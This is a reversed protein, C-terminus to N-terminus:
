VGSCSSRSTRSPSPRDTSYSWSGCATPIQKLPAVAPDDFGAYSEDILAALETAPVCGGVYHAVLRSAMEAYSRGRLADIASPSLRPWRQPVYLGGYPALGSMLAGDFDCAPAGGRTSIYRV